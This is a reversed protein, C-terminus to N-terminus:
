GIAYLCMCEAWQLCLRSSALKFQTSKHCHMLNEILYYAITALELANILANQAIGYIVDYTESLLIFTSFKFYSRNYSYKNNMHVFLQPQPFLSFWCWPSKKIKFQTSFIKWLRLFIAVFTYLVFYVSLLNNPKFNYLKENRKRNIRVFFFCCCCCRVIEGIIFYWFSLCEKPMRWRHMGHIQRCQIWTGSKNKERKM